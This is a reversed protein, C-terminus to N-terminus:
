SIMRMRKEMLAAHVVAAAVVVHLDVMDHVEYTITLGKKIVAQM